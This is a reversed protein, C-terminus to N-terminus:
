GHQNPSAPGCWNGPQTRVTVVYNAGSALTTAFTFSMAPAAPSGTDGNALALGAATLRTITLGISCAATAGGGAEPPVIRANNEAWCEPQQLRVGTLRM